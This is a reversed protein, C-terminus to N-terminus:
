PVKQFHFYCMQLYPNVAYSFLLRSVVEPHRVPSHGHPLERPSCVLTCSFCVRPCGFHTIRPRSSRWLPLFPASAAGPSLPKTERLWHSVDLNWFSRSGSCSANWVCPPGHRDLGPLGAVSPLRRAAPSPPRHEAPDRRLLPAGSEGLTRARTATWVSARPAARAVPQLWGEPWWGLPGRPVPATGM